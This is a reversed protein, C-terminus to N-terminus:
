TAAVEPPSDGPISLGIGSSQARQVYSVADQITRLDALATDPIEVNFSQEASIIMEVMSLSSVGLDKAIDAEPTVTKAPIGTLEEVVEARCSFIEYETMTM